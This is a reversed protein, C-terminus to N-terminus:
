LFEFLFLFLLLVVAKKEGIEGFGDHGSGLADTDRDLQQVLGRPVHHRHTILSSPLRFHFSFIFFCRRDSSSNIMATERKRPRNRSGKTSRNMLGQADCHLLSTSRRGPHPNPSRCSPKSSRQPSSIIFFFLLSLHSRERRRAATTTTRRREDVEEERERVKEGGGGCVGVCLVGGVEM